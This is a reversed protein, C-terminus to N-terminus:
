FAVSKAAKKLKELQTQQAEDSLPNGTLYINWFYAFRQAGQLDKEGMEILVSLDTIQNQDLRLYKWETLGALPKLDSIKNGRADLSDLWRLQALPELSAIQNGDIYLSWIKTLGSLPALDSIQNKALYLSRLNELKALPALDTVQNYSLQLYQLKILGEIPKIDQIKNKALNLSQLNKLGALPAANAIENGELDLLALSRCNELGTLDQIGQAKGEITSIEAVDEAVLPQDNDRKAFVYKRVVAELKKDPFISQAETVEAFLGCLLVILLTGPNLLTKM